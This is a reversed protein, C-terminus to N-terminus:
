RDKTHKKSKKEKKDLRIGAVLKISYFSQRYILDNFRISKNDIDTVIFIFYKPVSYGGIFRVDYRPALGLFGRTIGNANYYKNQIAGGFGLLGSFQWNNKRNTYAYGPIFGIDIATYSNSSTKNDNVDILQNPIVSKYGNGIGYVNFSSKIYISKVEKLYHGTKGLVPQMKFDKSNFYWTNISFGFSKTNSRIDNPTEQTLTSNWKYANKIAYGIFTRVDVDWYFKKVTFNFGLASYNTKGYKEEAKANGGIAFSLRLSFWKYCIGFGIVDKYNNRYKLKDVTGPFNYKISFPASTYGFDSYLVIKQKYIEYPLSDKQSLLNSNNLIIISFFLLTQNLYLKKKIRFIM